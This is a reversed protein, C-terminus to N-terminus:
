TLDCCVGEAINNAIGAYPIFTAVNGLKGLVAWRCFKARTEEASSFITHLGKRKAYIPSM